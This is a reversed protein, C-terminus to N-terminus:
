GQSSFSTVLLSCFPTNHSKGLEQELNDSGVEKSASSVKISESANDSAVSVDGDPSPTDAKADIDAQPSNNSIPCKTGKLPQANIKTASVVRKAGSKVAKTGADLRSSLTSTSASSQQSSHASSQISEKSHPPM